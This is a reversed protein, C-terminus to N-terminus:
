DNLWPGKIVRTHSHTMVSVLNVNHMVCLQTLRVQSMEDLTLQEVFINACQGATILKELWILMQEPAPKRLKICHKYPQTFTINDAILYSWKAPAVSSHIAQLRQQNFVSVSDFHSM